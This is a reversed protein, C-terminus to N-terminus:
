FNSKNDKKLGKYIAHIRDQAEDYDIEGRKNANMMITCPRVYYTTAYMSLAIYLSM